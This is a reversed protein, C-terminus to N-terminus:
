RRPAPPGPPAAPGPVGRSLFRGSPVAPMMASHAVPDLVANGVFVGELGVRAQAPHARQQAPGPQPLQVPAAHCQAGADAHEEAEHERHQLDGARRQERHQQTGVQRHRCHGRQDGVGEGIRRHEQGGVFGAARQQALRDLGRHGLRQGFRGDFARRICRAPQCPGRAMPLGSSSPRATNATTPPKAAHASTCRAQVSPTDQSFRRRRRRRADHCRRRRMSKTLRGKSPAAASTKTLTMAPSNEARM